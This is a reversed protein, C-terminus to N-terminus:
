LMMILYSETNKVIKNVLINIENINLGYARLTKIFKKRTM